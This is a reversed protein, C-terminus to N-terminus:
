GMSPEIRIGGCGIEAVHAEFELVGSESNPVEVRRDVEERLDEPHFELGTDLRVPVLALERIEPTRVPLVLEFQAPIRVAARDGPRESLPVFEIVESKGHVIEVRGQPPECLGSELGGQSWEVLAVPVDRKHWGDLSDPEVHVVHVPLRFRLIM